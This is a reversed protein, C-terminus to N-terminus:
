LPGGIHDLLLSATDAPKGLSLKYCPYRNVLDAAINLREFPGPEAYVMGKLLRRSAEAGGIESIVPREVFGDLFFFAARDRPFAAKPTTLGVLCKPDGPRFEKWEQGSNLTGLAELGGPRMHLPRPWPFLALDPLHFIATEDGFCDAGREMLALSLTSKGAGSAGVLVLAIGHTAAVAAHIIALKRSQLLLWGHALFLYIDWHEPRLILIESGVIELAPEGGFLTDAYLRRTAHEIPTFRKWEPGVFMRGPDCGEGDLALSLSPYPGSTRLSVGSSLPDGPKTEYGDSLTAIEQLAQETDACIWATEGAIGAWLHREALLRPASAVVTGSAQEAM